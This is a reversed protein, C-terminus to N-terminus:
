SVGHVRPVQQRRDPRGGDSAWGIDGARGTDSAGEGAEGHLARGGLSSWRAAAVIPRRGVGILGRAARSPPGEGRDM